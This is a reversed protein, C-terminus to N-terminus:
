RRKLLLGLIVGIGAAIGVAHWPNARVYTDTAKFAAKARQALADELLALRERAAKLNEDLKADLSTSPGSEVEGSVGDVAVSAPHTVAKLLRETEAVITNFEELLQEKRSTSGTPAASM